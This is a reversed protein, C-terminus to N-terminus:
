IHILSLPLSQTMLTKRPQWRAYTMKELNLTLSVVIGECFHTFIIYM